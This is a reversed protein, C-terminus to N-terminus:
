APNFRRVVMWVWGGVCALFLGALLWISSSLQPPSSANAAVVLLHLGLMFLAELGALWMGARFVFTFTEERRASALWYDRRPLNIAAPPFFRVCYFSGLMLTSLGVAVGGMTWVHNTRSMWNDPQGAFNFHSAVREPLQDFTLLLGAVLGIHSVALLTLPAKTRNM